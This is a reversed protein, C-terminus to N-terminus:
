DTGLIFQYDVKDGLDMVEFQHNIAQSALKLEPAPFVATVPVSHTAGIRPVSKKGHALKIVGALPTVTLSHEAVVRADILSLNAGTDLLTKYTRDKYMLWVSAPPAGAAATVSMTEAKNTSPDLRTPPVGANPRESRRVTTTASSETISQATTSKKNPCEKAYHGKNNCAHCVVDKKRDASSRNPESKVSASPIDGGSQKKLASCDATNHSTVKHHSCYM